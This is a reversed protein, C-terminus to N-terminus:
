EWAGTKRWRNLKKAMELIDSNDKECITTSVSFDIEDECIDMVILQSYTKKSRDGSVLAYAGILMMQGIKSQHEIQETTMVRVKKIDSRLVIKCRDIKTTKVDLEGTLVMRDECILITSVTIPDNSIGITQFANAIGVIKIGLLEEYERKLENDSKEKFGDFFGM